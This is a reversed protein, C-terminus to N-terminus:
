NRSDITWEMKHSLLMGNHIVIQKNMYHRVNSSTETKAILILAAVFM